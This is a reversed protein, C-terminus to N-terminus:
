TSAGEQVDDGKVMFKIMACKMGTCLVLDLKCRGDPLNEKKRVATVHTEAAGDQQSHYHKVAAQPHPVSM